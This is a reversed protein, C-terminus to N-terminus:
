GAGKRRLMTLTEGRQVVEGRQNIVELAQTIIGRDPKSTERTEAVVMEVHITDGLFVPLLFKWGRIELFAIATGSFIGLQGRLGTTISFVLAGHAIREGFHTERMFEANTHLPNYDGSLGSFLVVDAETVTRGETKFRQGVEFEEFFLGSM